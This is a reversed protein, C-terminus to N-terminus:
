QDAQAKGGEGIHGAWLTRTKGQHNIRHHNEIKKIFVKDINRNRLQNNEVKDGPSDGM